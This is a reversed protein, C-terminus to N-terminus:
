EKRRDVESFLEARKVATLITEYGMEALQKNFSWRGIYRIYDALNGIGVETLNRLRLEDLIVCELRSVCEITLTCRMTLVADEGYDISQPTISEISVLELEINQELM